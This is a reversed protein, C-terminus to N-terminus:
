DETVEEDKQQWAPDVLCLFALNAHGVNVIHQVSRPPIYVVDGPGVGASEEDICMRGRGQLMYYVEATRLRHKKTQEGARVIAHALSYRIRVPDKDPHLLERLLSGDGATFERCQRLRRILM